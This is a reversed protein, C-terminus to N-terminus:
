NSSNTLQNKLKKGFKFIRKEKNNFDRYSSTNIFFIIGLQDKPYYYMGTSVGPDGGGHGIEDGIGWFNAYSDIYDPRLMNDVTTEELIKIDGHKGKNIICLLYNSLDNVTTRLGGDPYTTLGYLEVEDLTTHNDKSEYLRSHMLRDMESIFWCTNNMNLPSFIIESTFINLPKGSVQEVIYGALGAGINSYLFKKGPISKTFNNKSFNDGNLSLYNELFDGLPTPSDDGYNYSPLYIDQNDKIGSTHSMLHRLTIISDPTFPNSVNFPLFINIDDDLAVIKQEVLYMISVGVFTKSISAINMITNTTFPTQTKIDSYGYGKSFIVSDNSLIAIGMGAINASSISQHIYRDFEHILTNRDEAKIFYISIILTLFFSSYKM